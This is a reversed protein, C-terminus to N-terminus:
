AEMNYCDSLLKRSDDTIVGDVFDLKCQEVKGPLRRWAKRAFPLWSKACQRSSYANGVRFWGTETHCIMTFYVTLHDTM